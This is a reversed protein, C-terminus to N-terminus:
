CYSVLQHEIHNQCHDQKCYCERDHQAPDRFLGTINKPSRLSSEILFPSLELCCRDDGALGLNYTREPCTYRPRDAVMDYGM